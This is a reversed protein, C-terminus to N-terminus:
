KPLAIIIASCSNVLEQLKCTLAYNLFKEVEDDDESVNDTQEPAPQPETSMKMLAEVFRQHAIRLSKIEEIVDIENEKSFKREAITVKEGNGNTEIWLDVHLDKSMVNVRNTNAKLAAELQEAVDGVIPIINSLVINGDQTRCNVM